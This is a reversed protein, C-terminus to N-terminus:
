KASSGSLVKLFKRIANEFVYKATKADVIAAFPDDLLYIDAHKYLCRALNVRSALDGSLSAANVVVTADGAPLQLDKDLLCIKMIMEYRAVDLPEHFLINQRISAHFIWPEHSSYSIRGNIEIVGSDIELEALIVQLLMSKGSGSKGIIAYTKAECLEMYDCCLGQKDSLWSTSVKRMLISPQQKKQQQQCNENVIRKTTDCLLLTQKSSAELGMLLKEEANDDDHNSIQNANLHSKLQQSSKPLKRERSLLLFAQIRKVSVFTESAHAVLLPWCQLMSTYLMSYYSLLVYVSSANLSLSLRSGMNVYSVLCVFISLKSVFSFSHLTAWIYLSGRVGDIECSRIEKIMKAFPQELCFTKITRIGEVIENMLRVRKATELTTRHRYVASKKGIWVTCSPLFKM